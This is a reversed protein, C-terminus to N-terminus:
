RSLMADRLMQQHFQKRRKVLSDFKEPSRNKFYFEGPNKLEGDIKLGDFDLKTKKPYVVRPANETEEASARTSWVLGLSFSIFIVVAMTFVFWMSQRLRDVQKEMDSM